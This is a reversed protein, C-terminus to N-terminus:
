LREGDKWEYARAGQAFRRRPLERRTFRGRIEAPANADSERCYDDILTLPTIISRLIEEARPNSMVVHCDPADAIVIGIPAAEFIAHLRAESELDTARGLLGAKGKKGVGGKFVPKIFIQRHRDILTKIEEESASPGLIESAPFGVFQLLRAGHLMGTIQM